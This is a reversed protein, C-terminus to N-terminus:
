IGLRWMLAQRRSQVEEVEMGAERLDSEGSESGLAEDFRRAILDVERM